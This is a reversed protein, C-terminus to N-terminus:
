KAWANYFDVLDPYQDLYKQDMDRTDGVKKAPNGSIISFDEFEGKVYSYASVLSGKGITTGPMIVSHPGVFTYKGIKVSGNFYAKPRSEKTYGAGYLRIAIHSSHNLISIYNTLQCGDGIEIGNSADIMNYHGIFVNNGLLLKEPNGIHTTNSIRTNLLKQGNFHKVRFMTPKFFKLIRHQMSHAIGM